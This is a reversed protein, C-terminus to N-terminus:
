LGIASYLKLSVGGGRFLKGFTPAAMGVDVGLEMLWLNLKLGATTHWMGRDFGIGVSLINLPFFSGEVIGGISLQAGDGFYFQGHGIVDILPLSQLRYFGGIQMPMRIPKALDTEYTPEATVEEPTLLVTGLPDDAEPDYGGLPNVVEVSEEFQFAVSNQVVAPKLTIGSLNVGYLPKRRDARIIGIDVKRGELLGIIAEPNDLTELAEFNVASYAKVDVGGTVTTTGTDSDTALSFSVNSAPDTYFIPAFAGVKMGVHWERNFRLGAYVGSDAFVRGVIDAKDKYETDIENGNVLFGFLQNPIGGSVVGEVTSYWGGTIGFLSAAVHSEASVRTAFSLDRGGLNTYLDNLNITLEPVLLDRAGYVTNVFGFEPSVGIEILRRNRVSLLAPNMDHNWSRPPEAVVSVLPVILMVLILLKKMTGVKRANM